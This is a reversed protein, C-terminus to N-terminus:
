HPEDGKEEVPSVLHISPERTRIFRLSWEHTRRDRRLLYLYDDDARVKFYDADPDYWRDYIQVVAREKEDMVFRVPEEDAKYGAKCAVKLKRFMMQKADWKPLWM